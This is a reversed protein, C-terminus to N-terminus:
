LINLVVVSKLLFSQLSTKPNAHLRVMVSPFTKLAMSKLINKIAPLFFKCAIMGVIFFVILNSIYTAMTPEGEYKFLGGYFVYGM